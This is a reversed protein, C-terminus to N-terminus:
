NKLRGAFSYKKQLLCRCREMRLNFVLQKGFTAWTNANRTKRFHGNSIVDKLLDLYNREENNEERAVRTIKTFKVSVNKDKVSDFVTFYENYAVSYEVNAIIKQMIGFPFAVDCEYDKDVCNIYVTDVLGSKLAEEYLAAGGCIFIAGVDLEYALKIAADFTKVVRVTADNTNAISGSVCINVRGALASGLSEYTKRGYIVANLKGSLYERKTADQFNFMDEKIKWPISNNKGIGYCKDIAVILNIDPTTM